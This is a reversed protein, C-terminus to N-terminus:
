SIVSLLEFSCKVDYRDVKKSPLCFRLGRALVIKEANNVTVESSTHRFTRFTLYLEIIKNELVRKITM